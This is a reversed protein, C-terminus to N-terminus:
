NKQKYARLRDISNKMIDGYFLGYDYVHLNFAKDPFSELDSSKVILNGNKCAVSGSLKLIKRDQENTLNSVEYSGFPMAGVMEKLPVQNGDKSWSIPNICDLDDDEFFPRRGEITSNWSIYCTNDNFGKCSEILRFQQSKINFGLLYAAILGQRFKIDNEYEYILRRLLHTGQSHGVLFFGRGLNEELFVEFADKVDSYALNIAQLQKEGDRPVNSFAYRNAQRYHPAYVDCCASFASAQNILLLNEVIPQAVFGKMPNWDEGKYTTPHLYFIAGHKSPEIFDFLKAPVFKELSNIKGFSYWNTPKKYNIKTSTQIPSTPRLAFQGYAKSYFVLVFVALIFIVGFIITDKKCFDYNM